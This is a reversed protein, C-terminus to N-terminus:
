NTLMMKPGSEESVWSGGEGMIGHSYSSALGSLSDLFSPTKTYRVFVVKELGTKERILEEAEDKGGLVDVLGYEKADKGLYVMGTALSRVYSPDLQRNNAIEDIFMTHMDDLQKQLMGREEDSLERFPTGIDKYKGAVLREYSINYDKLLGSFELYTSTVGISGTMSMRNAVIGDACSAVWYAGSAGMERILAVSTKNLKKVANCIEETAVPSGGPSNIELLVAKIEPSSDAKEILGVIDESSAGSESFLGGSSETLITGSIPIVAVNGVGSIDGGSGSMMGIGVASFLLVIILIPVIFLVALVIGVVLWVNTRKGEAEKQNKIANVGRLYIEWL